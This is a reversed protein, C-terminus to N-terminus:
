VVGGLGARKGGPWRVNTEEKLNYYKVIKASLQSADLPYKMFFYNKTLSFKKVDNVISFSSLVMLSLRKSKLVYKLLPRVKENYLKLERSDAISTMAIVQNQESGSVLVSLQDVKVPVLM